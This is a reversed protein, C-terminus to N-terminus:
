SQGREAQSSAELRKFYFGKHRNKMQKDGKSVESIKNASFNKFPFKENLKDTCEQISNYEGVFTKNEDYAQIQVTIPKKVKEKLIYDESPDANNNKRKVYTNTFYGCLGIKRGKALYNKVTSLSINFYDAIDQLTNYRGENFYKCVEVVLSKNAEQGCKIWDIISLDFIDKFESNLFQEKLFSPDSKIANIRIMHIGHNLAEKDKFGDRQQRDELTGNFQREEYHFGGDMELIYKQNNYEFYNDYKCGNAWDPGFETILNQIPLQKLFSRGYKNPYSVGDSCNPCKHISSVLNKITIKRTFNCNPCVSTVEKKSSSAQGFIEEEKVFNKIWPHLTSVDNAGQIILLGKCFPCGQKELLQRRSRSIIQGCKYCKVETTENRESPIHGIIEWDPHREKVLEIFNENSYQAM